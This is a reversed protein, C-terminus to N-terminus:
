GFNLGKVPRYLGGHASEVGRQGLKRSKERKSV